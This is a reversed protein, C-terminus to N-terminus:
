RIARSGRPTVFLTKMGRIMRRTPELRKNPLGSWRELVAEDISHSTRPVAM